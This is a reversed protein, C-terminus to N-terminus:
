HDKDLWPRGAVPTPWRQPGELPVVDPWLPGYWELDKTILVARIHALYTPDGVWWPDGTDPFSRVYSVLRRRTTDRYGRSIWEDHCALGFQALSHEHGAWALVAPHRAWGPSLGALAQLIQWVEIRQKGLRARDLRHAALGFYPECVFTNLSLRGAHSPYLGRLV